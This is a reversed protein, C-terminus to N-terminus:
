QTSEDWARRTIRKYKGDVVYQIWRPAKAATMAECLSELDGSALVGPPLTVEQAIKAIDDWAKREPTGGHHVCLYQVVPPDSLVRGYYSVAIMDVPKKKAQQVRWRWGKVEITKADEEWGMIDDDHLVLAAKPAPGKAALEFAAGCAPCVTAFMLCLEDCADCVKMPTDGAKGKAKPPNVRTIPGHRSVVGVFDLVLCHDTHPKIRMGRVASQLYLGPSMTDRLFVICDLAPFDYGTTLIGVNCLARIKGSEFDAIKRKRLGVPDSSDVSDATVGAERFAGAVDAAHKRSSCFVLWHRYSEARAKVEAVVAANNELTNFKAAMESAIFEGGSKHVGSTDMHFETQKSRLPMLKKRHILEEISVPELILNFIPSEGDTLMGQSLRYPSASYGGIRMDPNTALLASVLKRIASDDDDSMDQAEDILFLDIHGLRSAHKAVSGTSAIIIPEGWEKKRLGSCVVGMPAGPWLKRLADADHKVLEMSRVVMLVRSTPKAAMTQRIIEANVMSKGSGGPMALVPRVQPGARMAEWFQDIARVQYDYPEFRCSTM